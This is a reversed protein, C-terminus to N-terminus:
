LFLKTIVSGDRIFVFIEANGTTHKM